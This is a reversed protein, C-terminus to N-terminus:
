RLKAIVRDGDRLVCPSALTSDVPKATLVYLGTVEDPMRMQDVIVCNVPCGGNTREMILTDGKVARMELHPPVALRVMVRGTGVLRALQEGARVMSGVQGVVVAIRGDVPARVTLMMVRVKLSAVIVRQRELDRVARALQAELVGVHLSDQVLVGRPWAGPVAARMRRDEKSITLLAETERVSCSDASMEAVAADCEGVLDEAGLVFLVTGRAVTWGSSCRVKIVRADTPALIPGGGESVAVGIVQEALAVHVVGCMVVLVVASLGLLWQGGRM